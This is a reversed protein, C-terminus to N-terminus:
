SIQILSAQGLSKMAKNWKRRVKEAVAYVTTTTHTGPVLPFISADVVSLGDVGYVKLDTGVVGGKQRPMLPATCCPHAFTGVMSRRLFSRIDEASTVSVGPTSERPGMAKMSPTEYYRRIYPIWEAMIDLDIPNIATRYDVIPEADLNNPNLLVTGRSLPHLLYGGGSPGGSFPAEIIPQAPHDLSNALVALQTRYGAVVRADSGTPLTAAGTGDEVQKRIASIITNFNATMNRLPIYAASNSQAMTFPGRAPREKFGQIADSAFAPDLSM